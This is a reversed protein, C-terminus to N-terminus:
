QLQSPLIGISMAGFYYIM